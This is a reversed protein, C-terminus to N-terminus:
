FQKGDGMWSKVASAVVPGVAPVEILRACVEDQNVQQKLQEDYWALEKKLELLRLYQRHLLTRFRPTLGNEADELILSIERKLPALGKAIAIGYELLRGRIQNSLRVKERSLSQRIGHFAQEDQQEISKPRVLRVRGHLSAE